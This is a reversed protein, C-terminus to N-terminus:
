DRVLAHGLLVQFPARNSMMASMALLAYFWNRFQGPFCEVVFNAPFWKEWYEPDTNYHLTSFPVIGADLWPNGVEEIRHSRGGCASCSIEVKDIWPRHPTNGSFEDWGAVARQELEEIGGIVEVVVRVDPDDLIESIETTLRDRKIQVQRPKDLDRVLVRKVNVSAALRGEIERRNERLIKLAGAGVNGLGLLAISIGRMARVTGRLGLVFM